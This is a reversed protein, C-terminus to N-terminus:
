NFSCRLLYLEGIWQQTEIVLCGYKEVGGTGQDAKIPISGDQGNCSYLQLSQQNTRLTLTIGTDISSWILQPSDMSEPGSGYPRDLIFANDIGTCGIGCQQSHLAGDGILKPGTFNLPVPSSQFPYKVSQLGGTPVELTDISIIRDAYPMQLTDNLITPQEFAGLNWYIHNALMIPTYHDLAVSVIRSTLRPPSSVTFTVYTMQFSAMLRSCLLLVFPSVV